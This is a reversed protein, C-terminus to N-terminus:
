SGRSMQWQTGAVAPQGAPRYTALAHAAGSVRLAPWAGRARDLARLQEPVPCALRLQPRSADRAPLASAPHGGQHAGKRVAGQADDGARRARGAPPTDQGRLSGARCVVLASSLRRALVARTRAPGGLGDESAMRKRIAEPRPVLCPRGAVTLPVPSAIMHNM